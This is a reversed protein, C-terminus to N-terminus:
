EEAGGCEVSDFRLEMLFNASNAPYPQVIEMRRMLQCVAIQRARIGTM